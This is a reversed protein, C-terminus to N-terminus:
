VGDNTLKELKNKAAELHFNINKVEELIDRDPFRGTLAVYIDEAVMEVELNMRKTEKHFIDIQEDTHRDTPCLPQQTGSLIDIAEILNSVLTYAEAVSDSGNGMFLARGSNRRSRM